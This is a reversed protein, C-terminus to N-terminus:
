QSASTVWPGIGGIRDISYRVIYGSQAEPFDADPGVYAKALRTMLAGYHESSEVTATARIAAYPSVWDGPVQTPAFSLVVRPDRRINHLKVNDRAHGSVLTDGELGIWIATVQPSADSNTTALYALPGSEILNRLEMPLVGTV